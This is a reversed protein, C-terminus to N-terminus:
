RDALTWPPIIGRAAAAFRAAAFATSAQASVMRLLEYDFADLETKHELLQMIAVAGVAQDGVRLPVVVMPGETAGDQLFFPASSDFAKGVPGEGVRAEVVQETQLGESAVPVLRDGDASYVIYAGAGVFQLLLQGITAIVDQPELSAHLQSTAVYLSALNSLEQEVAAARELESRVQQEVQSTRSLLESRERELSEIKNLLDRIATDSKLQMRLRANEEELEVIKRRAADLEAVLETAIQRGNEFYTELLARRKEVLDAKDVHRPPRNSTGRAPRKRDMQEGTAIGDHLKRGV